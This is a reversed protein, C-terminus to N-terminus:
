VCVTCCLLKGPLTSLRRSMRILDVSVYWRGLFIVVDCSKLLEIFAKKDLKTMHTQAAIANIMRKNDKSLPLGM